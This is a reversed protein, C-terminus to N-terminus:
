KAPELKLTLYVPRHDSGQLAGPGDHVNGRGGEVFPKLEPSVMLYDIRSYTDERRYYHTWVQGHSDTAAVLEGIVTDGRKQLARIPRTGRTDNWDGCVIFKGKAPDPYRSLVLDRVAEAEAARQLAAEPDDKQDTRKSKLHLVFVSVDGENTAFIVELVGRKVVDTRGFYTIPIKAHRKVEKFPVKSLIAVHRDADAAELVVAHPFNQGVRRLERQFEQLYPPGGMEEVALIDPNIAAVVQRVAAKETQPKPYASRYVGDVMRDALTYNEVNFAAITIAAAAVTVGFRIAVFFVLIRWGAFGALRRYARPLNLGCSFVNKTNKTAL